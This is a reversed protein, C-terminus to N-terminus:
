RSIKLRQFPADIKVPIVSKRVEAQPQRLNKVSFIMVLIFVGVAGGVAGVIGIAIAGNSPSMEPVPLPTSIPIPIPSTPPANLPPDSECNDDVCLTDNEGIIIIKPKKLLNFLSPPEEAQSTTNRLSNPGYLTDSLNIKFFSSNFPTLVDTDLRIDIDARCLMLLLMLMAWAWVSSVPMSGFKAFDKNCM